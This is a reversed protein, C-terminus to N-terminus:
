KIFPRWAKKYVIVALVLVILIAFLGYQEWWASHVSASVVAVRGNGANDIARVYIDKTLSQHALLYPSEAETWSDFRGERVEYREIGSGKDQAAFVLFYKGDFVNPDSAIAPAFDEPSESDARFAVPSILLTVPVQEGTGDNKLARVNEFRIKELDRPYFTGQLTFLSQAGSFGGPTIGAFAIERGEQHPESIWVLIASNGIEIRSVQMNEPLILTGELANINATGTNVQVVATAAFVSIPLLFFVVTFTQILIRM